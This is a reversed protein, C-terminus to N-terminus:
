VDVLVEGGGTADRGEIAGPREEASPQVLDTSRQSRRGKRPWVPSQQVFVERNRACSRNLLSQPPAPIYCKKDGNQSPVACFYSRGPVYKVLGRTSHTSDPALEGVMYAIM